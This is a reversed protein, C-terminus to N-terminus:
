IGELTYQSQTHVSIVQNPSLPYTHLTWWTLTPTTIQWQIRTQPTHGFVPPFACELHHTNATHPIHWPPNGFDVDVTYTNDQTHRAPSLNTFETVYTCSEAHIPACSLLESFIPVGARAIRVCHSEAIIQFQVSMQALHVQTQQIVTLPQTPVGAFVGLSLDRPHQIIPTLDHTNANVM